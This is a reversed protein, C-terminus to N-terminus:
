KSSSPSRSSRRTPTNAATAASPVPNVTSYACRAPGGVHFTDHDDAQRASTGGHRADHHRFAVRHQHDVAGVVSHDALAGGRQRGADFHLEASM